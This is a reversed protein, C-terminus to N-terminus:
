HLADFNAGIAMAQSLIQLVEGRCHPYLVEYSGPTIIQGVQNMRILRLLFELLSNVDRGDIVPLEKLSQSFPHPLKQYLHSTFLSTGVPIVPEAQINTQQEPTEASSALISDHNSAM